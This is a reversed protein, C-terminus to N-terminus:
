LTYLTALVLWHFWFLVKSVQAECGGGKCGHHLPHAETWGRNQHGIGLNVAAATFRARDEEGKGSFYDITEREDCVCLPSPGSSDDNGLLPGLLGEGPDGERDYGDRVDERGEM